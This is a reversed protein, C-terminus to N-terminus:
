RADSVSRGSYGSISDALIPGKIGEKGGNNNCQLVASSPLEIVLFSRSILGCALQRFSLVIQRVISPSGFQGCTRALARAQFLGRQQPFSGIM